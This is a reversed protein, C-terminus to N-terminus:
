LVNKLREYLICVLLVLSFGYLFSEVPITWINFNTKVANNYLIVPRGTLYGNFAFTLIFLAALFWQFSPMCFLNTGAFSDAFLSLSWFLCAMFTYYRKVLLFLAATALFLSPVLLHLWHFLGPGTGAVSRLNVWLVLSAFPVTFFFMVEEVPLRFVRLGTVYTENFWWFYGTVLQDWIIFALGPLLIAVLAPLFAPFVGGPFLLCGAAPVAAVALNFALYELRRMRFRQGNM